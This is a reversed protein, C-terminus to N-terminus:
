PATEEDRDIRDVREVRTEASMQRVHDELLDLAKRDLLEARVDERVSELPPAIAADGYEARYAAEIEEDSVSQGTRFRFQLYRTFRIQAFLFEAVQEADLGYRRLGEQFSLSGFGQRRLEALTQDREEVTLPMGSLVSDQAILTQDILRETAQRRSAEDDRVQRGSFLAELRLQRDVDSATIEQDGVIAVIRDLIEARGLCLCLGALAVARRM